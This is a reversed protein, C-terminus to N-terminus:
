LFFARIRAAVQEQGAEDKIRDALYYGQMEESYELLAVATMVFGDKEPYLEVSVAPEPEYLDVTFSGDGNEECDEDARFAALMREQEEKSLKIIM